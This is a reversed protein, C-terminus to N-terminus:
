AFAPAALGRTLASPKIIPNMCSNNLEEYNATRALLYYTLLYQTISSRSVGARRGDVITTYYQTLSGTQTGLLSVGVLGLVICSRQVAFICCRKDPPLM